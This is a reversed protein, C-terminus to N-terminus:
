IREKEIYHDILSTSFFYDFDFLWIWLWTLSVFLSRVDVGVHHQTSMSVSLLTPSNPYWLLLSSATYCVDNSNQCKQFYICSLITQNPYLRPNSQWTNRTNPIFHQEMFPDLPLKVLDFIDIYMSPLLVKKTM